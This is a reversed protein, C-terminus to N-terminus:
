RLGFGESEFISMDLKRTMEGKSQYDYLCLENFCTHAIPLKKVKQPYLSKLRTISFSMTSVGTAPIRDSGTVFTLFLKQRSYDLDEFWEWFWQVIESQMAETTTSWGNYKAIAKFSEVEIKSENYGCILMEIEKPAFLSLANGGIVAHFGSYFSRFQAEIITNLYFDVWRKVYEKRNGYNVALNGGNPILPKSVVKGYYDHFETEFTLGLNQFDDKKYSLLSKLNKGTTPFMETYDDLTVKKNLLKKYLALPFRLELITSNYIALGLVVGLMYYLEDNREVPMPAFWCLHSEDNYLFMTNGKVNFLEKTLLLFWEKKLGGVDIGPENVFEIKLAKKLDGQNKKISNLSDITIHDRRILFRLNVNIIKRKDLAKLFAEEAKKEMTKRAEYELISIKAGLSLLFPYQCFTFQPKSPYLSPNDIHSIGNHLIDYLARDAETRHNPKKFNNEWIDFDHKIHVYDVLTNYFNYIELRSKNTVFFMSLLRAASKLHWETGYDSSKLKIESTKPVESASRTADNSSLVRRWVGWSSFGNQISIPLQIWTRTAM